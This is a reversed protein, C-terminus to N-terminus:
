IYISITQADGISVGKGIFWGETFSRWHTEDFPETGLYDIEEETMYGKPDGELKAEFERWEAIVAANRELVATKEFPSVEIPAGM